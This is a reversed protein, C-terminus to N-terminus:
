LNEVDRYFSRDPSSSDGEGAGRGTILGTTLPVETSPDDLFFFFPEDDNDNFPLAYRRFLCTCFLIFISNGMAFIGYPPGLVISASTYEVDHLITWVYFLFIAFTIATWLALALVLRLASM